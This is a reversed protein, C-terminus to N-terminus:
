ITSCQDEWAIPLKKIVSGPIWTSKYKVLGIYLPDSLWLFLKGCSKEWINGWWEKCSYCMTSVSFIITSRLVKSSLVAGAEEPKQTCHLRYQFYGQDQLLSLLMSCSQTSLCILGWLLFGIPTRDRVVELVLLSHEQAYIHFMFPFQTPLITLLICTVILFPISIDKASFGGDRTSRVKILLKAFIAM